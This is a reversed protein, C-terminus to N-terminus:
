EEKALRTEPALILMQPDVELGLHSLAEVYEPHFYFKGGNYIERDWPNLVLTDTILGIYDPVTAGRTHAYLVASKIRSAGLAEAKEKVMTATSKVADVGQKIGDEIDKKLGGLIDM